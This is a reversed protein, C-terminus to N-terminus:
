SYWRVMTRMVTVGEEYGLAILLDEMVKDAKLHGVEADGGPNDVINQMRDRFEDPTM